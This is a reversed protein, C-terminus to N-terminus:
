LIGAVPAIRSISHISIIDTKLAEFLYDLIKQFNDAVINEEFISEEGAIEYRVNWIFNM